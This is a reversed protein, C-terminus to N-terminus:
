RGAKKKLGLSILLIVACVLICSYFSFSRSLLELNVPDTMMQGYGDLFLYDTVGVGGPVPISNSGMIVWSQIAFMKGLERASGGSAAYLVMPVWVVCLRQLLNMGLALLLLHPKKGAMGACLRYDEKIQLLKDRRSQADKVLRLRQGVALFFDAIRLFIREHFILLMIAALLLSQLTLGVAILAHSAAGFLAYAGPCFILGLLIIVFISLTYLVANMLLAVTAVAAPIGDQLMLVASAPQGGTASPTIASFYIDAASYLVGQRFRCRQGFLRCVVQLAMGEFLIFGAMCLGAGLLGWLRVGRVYAMFGDASFSASQRCVAVITLAALALFLLSALWKKKM